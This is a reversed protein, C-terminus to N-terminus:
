QGTELLLKLQFIGDLSQHGPWTVQVLIALLRGWKHRWGYFFLIWDNGKKEISDLLCTVDKSRKFLESFTTLPHTMSNCLSPLFTAWRPRLNLIFALASPTLLTELMYKHHSRFSLAAIVCLKVIHCCAVISIVHWSWERRVSTMVNLRDCTDASSGRWSWETIAQERWM